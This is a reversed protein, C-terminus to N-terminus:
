RDRWSDEATMSGCARAPGCARREMEADGSLAGVLLGALPRAAALSAM